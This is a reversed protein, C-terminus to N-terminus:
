DPSKRPVIKRRVVLLHVFQGIVLPPIGFAGAMVALQSHYFGPAFLLIAGIVCGVLLTAHVDRLRKPLNLFMIMWLNPLVLLIAIGWIALFILIANIAERSISGCALM